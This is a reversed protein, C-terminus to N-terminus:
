PQQSALKRGGAPLFLTGTPNDRLFRTKVCTKEAFEAGRGVPHQNQSTKSQEHKLHDTKEGFRIVMAVRLLGDVLMHFRVLMVSVVVGFVMTVVVFAGMSVIEFRIM